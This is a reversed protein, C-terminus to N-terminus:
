AHDRAGGARALSLFADRKHLSIWSRVLVSRMHSGGPMAIGLGVLRIRSGRMDPDM